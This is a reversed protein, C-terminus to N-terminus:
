QTRQLLLRDLAALRVNWPPEANKGSSRAASWWDYVVEVVGPRALLENGWAEAAKAFLAPGEVSVVELDAAAELLAPLMAAGVLELPSASRIPEVPELQDTALQSVLWALRVTEPLEGIPNALVAEFRVVNTAQYAAGGGGTLPAVLAVTASEVILSADTRRGVGALLGPGRAEWLERLPGTRLRLEELIQPQAKLYERECAGLLGVLRPTLADARARGFLKTLVTHALDRPANFSPALAVLQTFFPQPDIQEATLFSALAVVEQTLPTATFDPEQLAWTERAVAYYCASGLGVHWRLQTTM